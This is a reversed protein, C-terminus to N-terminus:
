KLPDGGKRTEILVVGNAGRSGYVAASGDRIVHIDKVEIPRITSIVDSEVIIGDLVILAASSSNLSSTGRIIIDQDRVEVGPFQGKIMEFINTYRQFSSENKSLSSTATTRDKEQVSGYGIAYQKIEEEPRKKGGKFKLNVAVLKIQKTVKINKSGFGDAKIRLKDTSNCPIAFNGNQDTTVVQKTSKAIVEAGVLPISDFGHVIGHVVHDQAFLLNTMAVLLALLCIRKTFKIM